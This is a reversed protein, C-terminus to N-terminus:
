TSSTHSASCYRLLTCAAEKILCARGLHITLHSEYARCQTGKCVFSKGEGWCGADNDRV